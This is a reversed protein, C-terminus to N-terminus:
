VFRGLCARGAGCAKEASGATCARKGHTQHENHPYYLFHSKGSKAIDNEAIEWVRYGLGLAFFDSNIM